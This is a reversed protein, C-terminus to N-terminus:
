SRGWLISAPCLCSSSERQICLIVLGVTIAAGGDPNRLSTATIYPARPDNDTTAVVKDQMVLDAAVTANPAPSEVAAPWPTVPLVQSATGCRGHRCAIALLALAVQLLMSIGTRHRRVKIAMTNLILSRGHGASAPLLIIM